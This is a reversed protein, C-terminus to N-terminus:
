LTHKKAIGICLGLSTVENHLVCLPTHDILISALLSMIKSQNISASISLSLFIDACVNKVM